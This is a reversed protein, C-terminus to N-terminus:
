NTDCYSRMTFIIVQPRAFIRPVYDGTGNSTFVPIGDRSTSWASAFRQGYNTITSRFTFYPAWLGFFTVQGGHTHGSVILDIGTTDQSMSVDPNHTLLLVFDEYNASATATAICPNRRWLDELGALYFNEHIHLGSNSLPTIGNDEKAAFLERYRDHNGEVGFIGDTTKTRSLIELARRYHGNRRFFDGGLLLLNISRYNMQKVINEIREYEMEHVDVVFAIRYGDLVKPWRQSYFTVEKYEIVRDLTLAHTIHILTIVACLVFAIKILKKIKIGGKKFFLATAISLLNLITVAGKQM